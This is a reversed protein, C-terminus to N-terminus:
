KVAISAKYAGPAGGLNLVTLRYVGGNVVVIGSESAKEGGNKVVKGKGHAFDGPGDDFSFDVRTGDKKSGTFSVSIKQGPVLILDVAHQAGASAFSSTFSARAGKAGTADVLPVTGADPSGLAGNCWMAGLAALAASAGKQLEVDLLLEALCQGFYAAYADEANQPTVSGFGVEGTTVPWYPLSSFVIAESTKKLVRRVKWLTSGFIVGAEHEEPLGGQGVVDFLDDPFSRPDTLDRLSGAFVGLDPGLHVAFAPGIRADNLFSAAFFDALAENVARPPTDVPSAGFGHGAKEVVGHTYEHFVVSPDRSFDDMPDGTENSVDGFAFFGSGHGLGLDSTSFFANVLGAVNVVAPIAYSAASEGLIKEFRRGADTLWFYTNVQDFFSAEAPADDSVPKFTHSASFIDVGLDDLVHAFRGFLLGDEALGPVVDEIGLDALPKTGAKSGIAAKLNPYVSGTGTGTLFPLSDGGFHYAGEGTSRNEFVRLVSGTTADVDVSLPRLGERLVTDVRLVLLVAGNTARATRSVVARRSAGPGVLFAGADVGLTALHTSAIVEAASDGLVPPAVAVAGLLNGSAGVVGGKRDFRVVLGRGELPFGHVTQGFRAARVAGRADRLIAPASVQVSAGSAAGFLDGYSALFSQAAEASDGGNTPVPGRLRRVLGSSPDVDVVLRERAAGLAALSARDQARLVGGRVVQASLPPAVLSLLALAVIRRM